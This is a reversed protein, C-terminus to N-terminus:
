TENKNPNMPQYIKFMGCSQGKHRMIIQTLFLSLDQGGDGSVGM